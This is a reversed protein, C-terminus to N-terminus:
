NYSAMVQKAVACKKFHYSHWLGDDAWPEAWADKLCRCGMGKWVKRVSKEAPAPITVELFETM